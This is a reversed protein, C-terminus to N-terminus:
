LHETGRLTPNLDVRLDLAADGVAHNTSSDGLRVDKGYGLRRRLGGLPRDALLLKDLDIYAQSAFVLDLLRVNAVDDFSVTLQLALAATSGIHHALFLTLNLRHVSGLYIAM